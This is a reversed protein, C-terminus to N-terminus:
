KCERDGYADYVDVYRAYILTQKNMEYKQTYEAGRQEEDDMFLRGAIGWILLNEIVIDEYPVNWYLNDPSIYEEYTEDTERGFDDLVPFTQKASEDRETKILNPVIDFPKKGKAMRVANNILFCDAVIINAFTTFMNEFDEKDEEEGFMLYNVRTFLEETTM